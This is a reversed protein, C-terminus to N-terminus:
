DHLADAIAGVVAGIGAGGIIGVPGAIAFCEDDNSGCTNLGWVAGGAAGVGAGILTGNWLSDRRGASAREQAKLPPPLSGPQPLVLSALVGKRARGVIPSIRLTTKREDSRRGILFDIGAGAGAGIGGLTLYAAWPFDCGGFGNDCFVADLAAASGVGAGLGILTGNWLSDRNSPENASQAAAVNALLAFVLTAIGVKHFRLM